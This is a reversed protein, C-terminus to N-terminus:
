SVEGPMQEQWNKDFDAMAKAPTEGWGCVGEQINSGYLASWMNGDKGLDPKYLVSPRTQEAEIIIAAQHAAQAARSFDCSQRLVDRVAESINGGSIKSRVASYTADYIDGM